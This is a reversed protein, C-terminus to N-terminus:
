SPDYPIKAVLLEVVLTEWAPVAVSDALLDIFENRQVVDLLEVSCSPLESM